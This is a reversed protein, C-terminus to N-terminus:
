PHAPLDQETAQACTGDPNQVTIQLPRSILDPLGIPLPAVGGDTTEDSLNNADRDLKVVITAPGTHTVDRGQDVSVTCGCYQGQAGGGMGGYTPCTTNPCDIACKGGPQCRLTAGSLITVTAGPAFGWGDITLTYTESAFSGHVNRTIGFIKPAALTPCAPLSAGSATYQTSCAPLSAVNPSDLPLPTPDSGVSLTVNDLLSGLGVVCQGANLAVVSVHAAGDSEPSQELGFSYTYTSSGDNAPVLKDAIMPPNNQTAIAGNLYSAVQLVSTDQPIQEVNIRYKAGCSGSLITAMSGGFLLAYRLSKSATGRITAPGTAHGSTTAIASKGHM